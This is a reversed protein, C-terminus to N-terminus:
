PTLSVEDASLREFGLKQAYEWDKENITFINIGGTQGGCVSPYMFNLQGKRMDHVDIGELAGRMQEPSIGDSGCQISADSKYVEIRPTRTQDSNQRFYAWEEVVRGDAFVCVGYESGDKNKRIDSTGGQQTCFASAPNAIQVKHSPTSSISTTCASLMSAATVVGLLALIKM